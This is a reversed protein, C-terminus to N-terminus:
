GNAILSAFQMAEVLAFRGPSVTGIIERLGAPGIKESPDEVAAEPDVIHCEADFSQLARSSRLPGVAVFALMRGCTPQWHTSRFLITSPRSFDVTM